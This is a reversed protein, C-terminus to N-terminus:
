DLLSLSAQMYYFSSFKIRCSFFCLLNEYDIYTIMINFDSIFEFIAIILNPKSIFFSFHLLIETYLTISFLLAYRRDERM